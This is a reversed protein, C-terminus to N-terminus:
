TGAEFHISMENSAEFVVRAGSADLKLGLEESLIELGAKLSPDSELKSILM